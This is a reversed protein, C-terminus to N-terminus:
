DTVCDNDACSWVAQGYSSMELFRANRKLDVSRRQFTPTLKHGHPHHQLRLAKGRVKPVRLPPESKLTVRCFSLHRILGRSDREAILVKQIVSFPKTLPGDTVRNVDLDGADPARAIAERKIEGSCRGQFRL